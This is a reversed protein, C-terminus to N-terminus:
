GLLLIAGLAALGLLFLLIPTWVVVLGEHVGLVKTRQQYVELPSAARPAARRRWRHVDARAELDAWSRGTADLVQEVEVEPPRDGYALRHALQEFHDLDQTRM